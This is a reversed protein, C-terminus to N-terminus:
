EFAGQYDYTTRALAGPITDPQLGWRSKHQFAGGASGYRALDHREEAKHGPPRKVLTGGKSTPIYPGLDNATRSM